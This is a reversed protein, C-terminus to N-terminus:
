PNSCPIHSAQFLVSFKKIDDLFDYSNAAICFAWSLISINRSFSLNQVVRTIVAGCLRVPNSLPVYNQAANM